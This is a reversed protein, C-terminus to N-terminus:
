HQSVLVAPDGQVRCCVRLQPHGHSGGLVSCHMGVMSKRHVCPQRGMGAALPRYDSMPGCIHRLHARLTM